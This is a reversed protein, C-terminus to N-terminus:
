PNQFSRLGAGNATHSVQMELITLRAGELLLKGTAARNM